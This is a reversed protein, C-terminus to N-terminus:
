GSSILASVQRSAEEVADQVEPSLADGFGFHRGAIAVVVVRRPHKDFTRALELAEWLSHGHSSVVTREDPPSGSEVDFVRVRGAEAPANLADILIALEHRSWIELLELPDGDHEVVQIEPPVHSRVRRAVMLGVSDDQRFRNGVGIVIIRSKLRPTPSGGNM